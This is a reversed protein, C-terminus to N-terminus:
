FGQPLWDSAKAWLRELDNWFALGMLLIVVTLGVQQVALKTRLSLPKRNLAEVVFLSAQG